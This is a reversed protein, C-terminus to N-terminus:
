GRSYQSSMGPTEDDQPANKNKGFQSRAGSHLGATAMTAAATGALAKSKWSMGKKKPAPAAAPASSKGPPEIGLSKFEKDVHKRMSGRPATGLNDMTPPKYPKALDRKMKAMQLGEKAKGLGKGIKKRNAVIGATAALGAGLGIARKLTVKRHQEPNQPPPPQNYSGHLQGRACKQM